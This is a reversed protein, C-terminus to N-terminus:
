QRPGLNGSSQYQDGQRRKVPGQHVMQIAPRRALSQMLHCISQIVRIFLSSVLRGRCRARCRCGRTCCSRGLRPSPYWPGLMHSNRDHVHVVRSDTCLPTSALGWTSATNDERLRVHCGFTGVAVTCCFCSISTTHQMCLWFCLMICLSRHRVTLAGSQEM